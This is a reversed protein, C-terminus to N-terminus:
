KGICFRGFIRGLIDDPAIRGAVGGLSELAGHLAAAVLEPHALARGGGIAAVAADLHSVAEDLLARHREALVVGEAAVPAAADGTRWRVLPSPLGATAPGALRAVASSTVVDERDGGHAPNGGATQGQSRRRAGM